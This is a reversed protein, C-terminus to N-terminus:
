YRGAIKSQPPPIRNEPLCDSVLSGPGLARFPVGEEGLGGAPKKPLFDALRRVPPGDRGLHSTSSSDILVFDTNNRRPCPAHPYIQCGHGDM